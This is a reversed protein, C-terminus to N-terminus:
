SSFASFNLSLHSGRLVSVTVLLYSSSFLCTAAEPVAPPADVAWEELDFSERLLLM